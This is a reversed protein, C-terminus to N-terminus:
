GFVKRYEEETRADACTITIREPITAFMTSFNNVCSPSAFFIEDIFAFDVSQELEQAGHRYVCLPTVRNGLSQLGGKLFEDHLNSGPLLINESTVAHERCLAIIDGCGESDLTLDAIVGYQQLEAAAAKGTTCIRNHALHRVDRGTDFLYKFFYKVSFKNQFLLVSYSRIDDFSRRVLDLDAGEIQRCPFHVMIYDRSSYRKAEGGTILVKRKKSHWNDAIFRSINDGIILLAPSYVARERTRFEDLTGTFVQQNYRTANQVVAVKTDGSRGKAAVADLVDHVTSAVMYYVLTDADPVQISSVPHGTCFAVSSSVKRMTLPIETYASAGHAATIGPIIEYGVGNKRLEDIEEGGRGFVFPDGGKLRAVIRGQLAHRVIELNIEEQEFHHSDKRKGTYIKQGNFQDVLELSVLDDYLIVDADHLVRRAKVTLLEPDGPGAGIIYVYGKKGTEITTM